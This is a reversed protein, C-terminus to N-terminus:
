PSGRLHLTAGACPGHTSVKALIVEREMAHVEGDEGIAVLETATTIADLLEMCNAKVAALDIPSILAAVWLLDDLQHCYWKDGSGSGRIHIAPGSDWEYLVEEIEGLKNM